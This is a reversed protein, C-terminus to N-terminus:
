KVWGCRHHGEPVLVGDTSEGVVERERVVDHVLPVLVDDGRVNGARGLVHHLHAHVVVAHQVDHVLARVPVLLAAPAFGVTRTNKNVYPFNYMSVDHKKLLAGLDFAPSGDVGVRGALEVRGRHERAHRM